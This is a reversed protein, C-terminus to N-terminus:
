TKRRFRMAFRTGGKREVQLRGGLQRVVTAAVLRLGMSPLHPDLVDLEAPLGKGDDEVVLEVEESGQLSRLGVSVTGPRGEPFAHKFANVVLEVVVMGVAVGQDMELSVNCSGTRLAVGRESAGYARELSQCLKRLYARCDVLSLNDSRYLAEHILAMARIRNRCEDFARKSPADELKISYLRLMSSITQMNNKVRHHVERLLVEKERLAEAVREEAHKRKTIDVSFGCVGCPEGDSELLPYKASLFTRMEGYAPAVEERELSLGKEVVRRDNETSQRAVPEPFLDFDTRGLVEDKEYGSYNEFTKNVMTYRGCLDKSYIVVPSHSLIQHLEDRSKSLSIEESKHETVDNLLIRAVPSGTGEGPVPAGNGTLRAWVPESDGRELRAECVSSRNAELLKALFSRCADRDEPLIFRILPKDILSDRPAELLAALAENAELISGREDVVVYAAPAFEYLHVYRALSAELRKERRRLEENRRELEAQNSRLKRILGKAQEPSFNEM